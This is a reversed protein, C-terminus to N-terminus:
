NLVNLQSCIILVALYLLFLIVFLSNKDISVKLAFEKEAGDM